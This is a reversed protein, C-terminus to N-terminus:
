ASADTIPCDTLNIAQLQRLGRLAALNLDCRNKGRLDLMRLEPLAAIANVLGPTLIPREIQLSRYRDDTIRELWTRIASPELSARGPSAPETPFTRQPM